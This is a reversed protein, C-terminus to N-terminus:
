SWLRNPVARDAGPAQLIDALAETDAVNDDSIGVSEHKADVSSAEFNKSPPEM